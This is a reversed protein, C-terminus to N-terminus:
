YKNNLDATYLAFDIGQKMGIKNIFDVLVADIIDQNIEETDKIKNMHSNRKISEKAEKRYESANKALLMLLDISNM